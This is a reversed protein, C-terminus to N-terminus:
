EISRHTDGFSLSATKESTIGTTFLVSTATATSNGSAYVGCSEAGSDFNGNGNSDFWAALWVKENTLGSIVFTRSKTQAYSLNTIFSASFNTSGFVAVALGNTAQAELAGTYAISAKLTGTKYLYNRSVGLVFANTTAGGYVRAGSLNTLVLANKYTAFPERIDLLANNDLDHWAIIYVPSSVINDLRISLANTSTFAHNTVAVAPSGDSNTNTYVALRLPSTGSITMNASASVTLSLIAPNDASAIFFNSIGEGETSCAIAIFVLVCAAFVWLVSTITRVRGLSSATKETMRM